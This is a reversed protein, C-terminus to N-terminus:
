VNVWEIIAVCLSIHALALLYGGLVDTFGHSRSVTRRSLGSFVRAGSLMSNPLSFTDAASFAGTWSEAGEEGGVGKVREKEEKTWFRVAM